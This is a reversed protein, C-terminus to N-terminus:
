PTVLELKIGDRDLHSAQLPFHKPWWACMDEVTPQGAVIYVSNCAGRGDGHTRDWWAMMTVDRAPLRHVLFRGQPLEQGAHALRQRDEHTRGQMTWFVRGGGASKPAWGGDLGALRYVPCCSLAEVNSGHTGYLFHGSRDWVGHYWAGTEDDISGTPRAVIHGHEKMLEVYRVPDLDADLWLQYPTRVRSALADTM